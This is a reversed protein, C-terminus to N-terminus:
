IIFQNELVVLDLFIYFCNICCYIFFDLVVVKGKLQELNLLSSVNMWELDVFYFIFLIVFIIGIYICIM